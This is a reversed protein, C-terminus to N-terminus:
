PCPFRQAAFRALAREMTDGHESVPRNHLWTGVETSTLEGKGPAPFCADPQEGAAVKEEQAKRALRLGDLVAAHLEAIAADRAEGEPLKGVAVDQALWQGLTIASPAAPDAQALVAAPAIFALAALLAFRRISRYM